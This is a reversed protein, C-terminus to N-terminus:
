IDRWNDTTFLQVIWLFVTQGRISVTLYTFHQCLARGAIIYASQIVFRQLMSWIIVYWYCLSCSTVVSAEVIIFFNLIRTIKDYHESVNGQSGNNSQFERARHVPHQQLVFKQMQAPHVTDLAILLVHSGCFWHEGSSFESLLYFVSM